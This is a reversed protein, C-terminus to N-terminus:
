EGRGEMVAALDAPIPMELFMDVDSGGTNGVPVVGIASGLAGLAVRVLQGFAARPRRQAVAVRFMLGHVVVHAGVFRQGLVHARELHPMADGYRGAQMLAKARAIEDSLAKAHIKNM